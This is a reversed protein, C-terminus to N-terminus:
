HTNPFQSSAIYKQSSLYRAILAMNTNVQNQIVKYLNSVSYGTLPWPSDTKICLGRLFALTDFGDDTNYIFLPADNTEPTNRQLTDRLDFLLSTTDDYLRLRTTLGDTHDWLERELLDKDVDDYSHSTLYLEPDTDPPWLGVAAITQSLDSGTTSFHIASHGHESESAPM